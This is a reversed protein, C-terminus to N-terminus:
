LKCSHHGSLKITFDFGYSTVISSLKIEFIKRLRISNQMLQTTNIGRLLISNNLSFM